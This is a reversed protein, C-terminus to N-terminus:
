AEAQLLRDIDQLLNPRPGSASLRSSSPSPLGTAPGWYGRLRAEQLAAQLLDAMLPSDILENCGGCCVLWYALGGVIVRIRGQTGWSFEHFWCDQRIDDNPKILNDGMLYDGRHRGKKLKAVEDYAVPNDGAAILTIRMQVEPVLFALRASESM